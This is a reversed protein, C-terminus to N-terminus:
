EKGCGVQRVTKMNYSGRATDNTSDIPDEVCLTVHNPIIAGGRRRNNHIFSPVTSRDFYCGQGKCAIGVHNLNLVRGYLRHTHITLPTDVLFPDSLTATCLPFLFWSSFLPGQCRLHLNLSPKVLHSSPMLVFAVAGVQELAAVCYAVRWCWGWPFRKMGGRGGVDVGERVCAVDMYSVVRLGCVCRMFDVLLLGLNGDLPQADGDDSGGGRRRKNKSSSGGRQQQRQKGGAPRRSQHLQLLAVIMIILTYSGVGGTYVENLERQTLFVQTNATVVPIKPHTHKCM